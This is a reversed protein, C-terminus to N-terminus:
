SFLFDGSRLTRYPMMDYKGTHPTLGRMSSPTVIKMLALCPLSHSAVALHGVYHSRVQAASECRTHPHFYSGCFKIFVDIAKEPLALRQCPGSALKGVCKWITLTGSRAPNLEIM